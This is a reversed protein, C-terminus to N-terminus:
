CFLIDATTLLTKDVISDIGAADAAADAESSTNPDPSYCPTFVVPLLNRVLADAASLIFAWAARVVLM